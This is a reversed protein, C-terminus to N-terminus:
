SPLLLPMGARSPRAYASSFTTGRVVQATQLDLLRTEVWVVQGNPPNLCVPFCGIVAAQPKYTTACTSCIYEGVRLYIDGVLTVCRVLLGDGPLKVPLPREEELQPHSAPEPPAPQSLPPPQSCPPETAGADVSPEAVVGRLTAAPSAPASGSAATAAAPSAAHETSPPDAANAAARAARAERQRRFQKFCAHNVTMADEMVAQRSVQLALLEAAHMEEVPKAYLLILCALQARILTYYGAIALAQVAHVKRQRPRCSREDDHGDGAAGADDGRSSPVRNNPRARAATGPQLKPPKRALLAAHLDADAPPLAFTADARDDALASLTFRSLDARAHGGPLSPLAEVAAQGVHERAHAVAPKLGRAECLQRIM